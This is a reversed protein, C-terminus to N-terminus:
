LLGGLPYCCGGGKYYHEMSQCDDSKIQLHIKGILKHSSTDDTGTQNLLFDAKQDVRLKNNRAEEGFGQAM